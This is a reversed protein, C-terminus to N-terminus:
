RRSISSVLAVRDLVREMKALADSVSVEGAPGPNFRVKRANNKDRRVTVAVGAVEMYRCALADDSAYAFGVKRTM